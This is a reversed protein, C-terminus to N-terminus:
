ATWVVVAASMVREGVYDALSRIDRESRSTQLQSSKEKLLKM